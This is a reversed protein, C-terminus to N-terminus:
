SIWGLARLLDPGKWALAVLAALVLALATLKRGDTVAALVAQIAKAPAPISDKLAELRQLRQQTTEEFDADALSPHSRRKEAVSARLARERAARNRRFQDRMKDALADGHKGGNGM